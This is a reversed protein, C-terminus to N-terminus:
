IFIEPHLLKYKNIADVLEFYDKIEPNNSNIIYRNVSELLKKTIKAQAITKDRILLIALDYDISFNSLTDSSVKVKSIQTEEDLYIDHVKLELFGSEIDYLLDGSKLADM